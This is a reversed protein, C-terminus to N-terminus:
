HDGLAPQYFNRVKPGPVVGNPRGVNPPWNPKSKTPSCTCRHCSRLRSDRPFNRRTALSRHLFWFIFVFVRAARMDRMLVIASARPMDPCM